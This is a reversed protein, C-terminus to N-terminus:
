FVRPSGHSVCITCNKMDCRQNSPLHCRGSTCHATSGSATLSRTICRNRHKDANKKGGEEEEDPRHKGYPRIGCSPLYQENRWSADRRCRHSNLSKFQQGFFLYGFLFPLLHLLVCLPTTTKNKNQKKIDLSISRLWRVNVFHSQWKYFFPKPRGGVSLTM